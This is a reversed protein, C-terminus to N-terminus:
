RYDHRCKICVDGRRYLEKKDVEKQIHKKISDKQLEKKIDVLTAWIGFLAEIGSDGMEFDHQGTLYEKAFQKLIDESTVESM